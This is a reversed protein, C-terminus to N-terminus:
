ARFTWFVRALRPDQRSATVLSDTAEQLARPGRGGRDQVLAKFGGATGLGQVPPPAVVFIDGKGM